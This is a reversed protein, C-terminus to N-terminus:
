AKKLELLDIEPWAFLRFPLGVAALGRSVNLWASHDHYLGSSYKYFRAALNNQSDGPLQYQGGHTHGALYLHFGAADAQRYGEPRHNLLIRFDGEQPEPGAALSFNLVDEDAHHNVGMWFRNSGQDDLGVLTLPLGPVRARRNVLMNLGRGDLLEAIRWPGAYHDHNGLVAWVGHPVQALLALPEYYLKAFDPKHDVLDGTMLVIDPRAAMTTEFVRFLEWPNMWRGLHLDTLHAVVLGDLEAPLAPCILTKRVTAPALSQKLVGGGVMGALGCLGATGLGRMFARRRADRPTEAPTKASPPERRSLLRAGFQRLALIVYIVTLPILALLHILQWSLAPRGLFTWTADMMGDRTMRWFTYAWALNAAVFFATLLARGKASKFRQRWLWCFRIQAVLCCIIFILAAYQRILGFFNL